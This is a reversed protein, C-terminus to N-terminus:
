STLSRDVQFDAVNVILVTLRFVIGSERNKLMDKGTLQVGSGTGLEDAM